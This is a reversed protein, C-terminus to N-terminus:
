RTSIRAHLATERSATRVRAAGSAAHPTRASFGPIARSATAAVHRKNVDTVHATERMAPRVRVAASGTILTQASWAGSARHTRM